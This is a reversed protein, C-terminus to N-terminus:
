KGELHTLLTRANAEFTRGAIIRRAQYAAEQRATRHDLWWRIQDAADDPTTFTPLMSLVEDGEPRPDRIFFLGCAAMEVERPGMAWGTADDDTDGERRYYNLGVQASQYIRVTETNDLCESEAHAVYQRLPSDIDLRQWNGALLVDLGDLNMAEFLNIRSEFGTGVFALDAALKPDPVSPRHLTPRYAHPMYITGTPFRDINTPDNILNLDAHEAQATQRDDEYPSETHLVVVKTGYRRAMDLLHDPILFGTIVLLVDPITKYLTAYLGNVAHEIAVEATLAKRFQHDTVQLYALDYFALRDDLNFEIIHHGLDQLAEVWGVYVDAVSFSPGPHVVLIRV